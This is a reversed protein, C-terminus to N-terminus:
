YKNWMFGPGKPLTLTLPKATFIKRPINSSHFVPLIPKASHSRNKSLAIADLVIFGSINRLQTGWCEM